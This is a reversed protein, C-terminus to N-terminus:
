IYIGQLMQAKPDMWLRVCLNALMAEKTFPQKVTKLSRTEFSLVWSLKEAQWQVSVGM